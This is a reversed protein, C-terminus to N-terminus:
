LQKNAYFIPMPDFFARWYPLSRVVCLVHMSICVQAVRALLTGASNCLPMITSEVHVTGQDLDLMAGPIDGRQLKINTVGHHWSCPEGFSIRTESKMHCEVIHM